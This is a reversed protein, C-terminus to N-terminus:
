AKVGLHVMMMTTPLPWFTNVNQTWSKLNLGGNQNQPDLVEFILLNRCPTWNKNSFRVEPKYLGRLNVDSLLSFRSITEYDTNGYKKAQFDANQRWFIQFIQVNVGLIQQFDAMKLVYKEFNVWAM